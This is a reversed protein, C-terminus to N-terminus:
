VDQFVAIYIVQPLVGPRISITSGVSPGPEANQGWSCLPEGLKSLHRLPTIEVCRAVM